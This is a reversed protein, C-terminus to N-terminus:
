LIILGTDVCPVISRSTDEWHKERTQVDQGGMGPEPLGDYGTLVQDVPVINRSKEELEMLRNIEEWPTVIRPEDMANLAIDMDPLMYEITQILELWIQTWFWDSGASATGNRINITMEFAEAEKRILNAPVGWFPGLDHYVQDFFDEVIIANSEKAFNFWAEFGPPPHRGRRKRYEAAADEITHTEKQLMQQFTEEGAAILTDIPHSGAPGSLVTQEQSAENHHAWQLRSGGHLHHNSSGKAYFIITVLIVAVILYRLIGSARRPPGYAMATPSQLM